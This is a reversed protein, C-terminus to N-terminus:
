GQEKRQRQHAPPQLVMLRVCSNPHRQDLCSARHAMARRAALVVCELERTMSMIRAPNAAHDVRATAQEIIPGRDLESTLYHATAGIVKVGAEFAQRHPSAGEFGPLLGHHINIMRSPLADVILPSLIQMYRALVVLDVGLEDVMGLVAAEQDRKTSRTVALHRFPIGYMDAMPALDRHNSVIVPIEVALAGTEHRYLLDNLCHGLRSVLLLIVPRRDPDHLGWTMDFQTALPAFDHRLDELSLPANIAAAQIRLFFRGTDADGFQQSEMINLHHEGLYGTVAHVIGIRDPCSVSLVVSKVEAM